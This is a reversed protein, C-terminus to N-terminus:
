KDHSLRFLHIKEGINTNKKRREDWPYYKSGSISFNIGVHIHFPCPLANTVKLKM